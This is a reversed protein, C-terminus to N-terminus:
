RAAEQARGPQAHLGPDSCPTRPTATAGSADPLTAIPPRCAHSM